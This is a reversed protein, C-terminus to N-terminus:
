NRKVSRFVPVIDYKHQIDGLAKPNNIAKALAEGTLRVILDDSIGKIEKDAVLQKVCVPVHNQAFNQLDVPLLYTAVQETDFGQELSVVKITELNQKPVPLASVKDAELDVSKGVEELVYKLFDNFRFSYKAAPFRADNYWHSASNWVFEGSSRLFRSLQAFTKAPDTWHVVQNAIAADISEPVFDDTTQIDGLIFDVQNKYKETEKRFDQWYELLRQDQIHALWEKSEEQHFKYKAVLLMGKSIEIGTVLSHPKQVLLESTLIGTGAGVELLKDGDKASSYKVLKKAGAQYGGVIEPFDGVQVIQKFNAEYADYAIGKDL